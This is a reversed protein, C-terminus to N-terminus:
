QRYASKATDIRNPRRDLEAAFALMANPKSLSKNFHQEAKQSPECERRIQEAFQTSLGAWRSDESM